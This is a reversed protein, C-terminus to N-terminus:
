QGKLILFVWDVNFPTKTKVVHGRNLQAEMPKLVLKHMFPLTFLDKLLHNLGSCSFLKSEFQVTNIGAM